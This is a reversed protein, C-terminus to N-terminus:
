MKQQKNEDTLKQFVPDSASKQLVAVTGPFCNCKNMPLLLKPGATHLLSLLSTPDEESSCCTAKYGESIVSPGIQFM